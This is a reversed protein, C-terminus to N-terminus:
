HWSVQLMQARVSEAPDGLAKHNILLRCVAVVAQEDMLPALKELADAIAVRIYSVDQQHLSAEIIMGYGDYEPEPPLIM